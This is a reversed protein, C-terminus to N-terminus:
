ASSFLGTSQKRRRTRTSSSITSCTEDSPGGLYLKPLVASVGQFIPPETKKTDVRVRFILIKKM